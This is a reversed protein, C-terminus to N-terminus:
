AIGSCLVLFRIVARPVANNIDRKETKM